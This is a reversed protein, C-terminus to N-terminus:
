DIKSVSKTGILSPRSASINSLSKDNRSMKSMVSIKKEPALTISMREYLISGDQGKLRLHPLLQESDAVKRQGRKHTAAIKFTRKSM